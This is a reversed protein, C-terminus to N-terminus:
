GRRSALFAPKISRLNETGTRHQLDDFTVEEGQIWVHSVIAYPATDDSIFEKLDLVSTDNSELLRM